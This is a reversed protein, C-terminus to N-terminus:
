RWQVKEGVKLPWFSKFDEVIHRLHERALREALVADGAIIAEAMVGCGIFSLSTHQLSTM